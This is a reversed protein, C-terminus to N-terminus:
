RQDQKALRTTIIKRLQFVSLVSVVIGFVLMMGFVIFQWPQTHSTGGVWALAFCAGTAAGLLVLHVTSEAMLRVLRSTPKDDIDRWLNMNFKM